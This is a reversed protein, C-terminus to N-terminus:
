KYDFSEFRLSMIKETNLVGYAQRFLRRKLGISRQFHSVSSVESRLFAEVALDVLLNQHLDSRRLSNCNRGELVNLAKGLVLYHLM